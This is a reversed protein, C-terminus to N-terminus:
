GGESGCRAQLLIVKGEVSVLLMHLFSYSSKVNILDTIEQKAHLHYKM